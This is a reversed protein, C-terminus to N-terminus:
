RLRFVELKGKNKGELVERVAIQIGLRQAFLYLNKHQRSRLQDLLLRGGVEMKRLM